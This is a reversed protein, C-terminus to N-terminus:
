YLTERIGAVIRDVGPLVRDELSEAYPMPVFESSVRVVPADLDDFCEKHVRDSIHASVSAFSNAEDVVVCRHTKRVSEFIM